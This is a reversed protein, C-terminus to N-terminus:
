KQILMDFIPTDGPLLNYLIYDKPNIWKLKDHVNLKFDGKFNEVKYFWLDYINALYPYKYNSVLDGVEADIELEEMLERKLCKKHTEGREHKGGPFEWMGALSEIPSRRGILIKDKKYIIGAIVKIIMKFFTLPNEM